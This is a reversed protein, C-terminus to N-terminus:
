RPMDAVKYRNYAETTLTNWAPDNRTVGSELLVRESEEIFATKSTVKTEDLSLTKVNKGDVNNDVIAGITQPAGGGGGKDENFLVDKLRSKLVDGASMPTFDPNSLRSGDAGLYFVKDGDLKSNTKLDNIVTAVMADIATKPIQDNFKLGILGKDIDLQKQYDLLSNSSTKIQEQMAEKESIWTAKDKNYTAEWHAGPGNTKLNEIEATLRAVEADKNLSDKQGRLGKLENFLEKAKEYTKQRGGGDLTAPREGLIEFIDNDYSQHISSVETGIREQYMQEARNTLTTTGTETSLVHATVSTLLEANGNLAEVIQEQTIEM